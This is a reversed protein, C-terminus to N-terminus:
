PFGCCFLTEWAMKLDTGNHFPQLVLCVIQETPECDDENPNLWSLLGLWGLLQAPCKVALQADMALLGPSFAPPSAWITTSLGPLHVLSMMMMMELTSSMLGFFARRSEPLLKLLRDFMESIAYTHSLARVQRRSILFTTCVGWVVVLILVLKPVELIAKSKIKGWILQKNKGLDVGPCGEGRRGRGKLKPGWPPM